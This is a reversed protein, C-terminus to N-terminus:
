KEVDDAVGFDEALIPHIERAGHLVRAIEVGGDIPRYFVIYVKFRSSLPIYRLEALAPNDHEYRKGIGPM